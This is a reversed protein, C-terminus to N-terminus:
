IATSRERIVLRMNESHGNDQKYRICSRELRRETTVAFGEKKELIRDLSLLVRLQPREDRPIATEKGM